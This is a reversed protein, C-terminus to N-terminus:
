INIYVPIPRCFKDHFEAFIRESIRSFDCTPLLDCMFSYSVSRTIVEKRLSIYGRSALMEKIKNFGCGCRGRTGIRPCMFATWAKRDVKKLM